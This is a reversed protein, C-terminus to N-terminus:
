FKQQGNLKASVYADVPSAARRQGFFAIETSIELSHEGAHELLIM